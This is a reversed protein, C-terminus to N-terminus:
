PGSNRIVQMIVPVWNIAIYGIAAYKMRNLGSAPRGCICEICGWVFMIYCLPDSIDLLLAKVPAFASSISGASGMVEIAEPGPASGGIMRAGKTLTAATITWSGGSTFLDIFVTALAISFVVKHGMPLYKKVKAKFTSVAELDVVDVKYVTPAAAGSITEGNIKVIM